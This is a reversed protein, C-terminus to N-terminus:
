FLAHWTDMGVEGDAALKHAKQFAIVAKKTQPGFEGDEHIKLKEQIRRV